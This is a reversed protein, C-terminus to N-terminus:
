LKKVLKVFQNGRDFENEFIGFSAAGPSLLVIDGKQVIKKVQNLAQNMKSVAIVPLVTQGHLYNLIKDTATGKFLILTKVKKNVEKVYQRYDLKKDQGGGLLIIQGKKNKFFNLAAITGEPSTATTDNYYGVGKVRRIFELRHPVGKFKNLVKKIKLISIGYLLAVTIAALANELNHEGKIKIDQLQCIKKTKKNRRFYITQGRLYVGQGSKFFKKSFWYIQAPAKPSLKRTELNDKNLVLYDEPKQWKFINEKDRYYAKLNPYKDLHDPMLNTIVAIQPSKKITKFGRLLWSSLEAVILPEKKLNIYKLPSVGINGGLLVDKHKARILQYVLCTTTSKGKTGTVGILFNHRRSLFIIWDNVVPIKNKRAIKLYPSTDPVSPNQFLLDAKQFDKKQHRGLVFTINKFKKLKRIPIKLEKETQLDTVVVKAGQQAFFIAASIGSGEQYAGLGMITVQKKM